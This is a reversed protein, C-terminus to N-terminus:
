AAEGNGEGKGDLEADAALLSAMVVDGADSFTKKMSRVAKKGLRVHQQIMRKSSAMKLPLESQAFEQAFEMVMGGLAPAAQGVFEGYSVASDEALNIIASVIKLANKM